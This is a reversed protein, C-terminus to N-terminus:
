RAAVQDYVLKAITALVSAVLVKRILKDKGFLAIRAGILAGLMSFAGMMLILQWLFQGQALLVAAGGVHMGCQIIKTTALKRGTAPDFVEEAVRLPLREGDITARLESQLAVAKKELWAKQEAATDNDDRDTDMKERVVMSPTEAILLLFDVELRDPMIWLVSIHEVNENGLPHAVAASAIILPTVAALWRGRRPNCTASM